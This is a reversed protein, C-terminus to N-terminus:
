WNYGGSSGPQADNFRADLMGLGGPELAQIRQATYLNARYRTIDAWFARQEQRGDTGLGDVLEAFSGNPAYRNALVLEINVIEAALAAAPM